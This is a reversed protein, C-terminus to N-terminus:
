CVVWRCCITKWWMFDWMISRCFYFDDFLVCVKWCSNVIIHLLKFLIPWTLTFTLAVHTCSIIQWPIFDWLEPVVFSVITLIICNRVPRLSGNRIIQNSTQRLDTSPLSRGNLKFFFPPNITKKKTWFNKEAVNPILINKKLFFGYGGVRSTLHDTGLTPIAHPMNVECMGYYM